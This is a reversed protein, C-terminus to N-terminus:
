EIGLALMVLVYLILEKCGFAHGSGDSSIINYRYASANFWAVKTYATSSMISTASDVSIYDNAGDFNFSGVNNSDFSVGNYLTGNGGGTLNTYATGTKPYSSINGPDLCLTLGDEIIDPGANCAM